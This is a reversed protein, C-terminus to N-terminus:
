IGGKAYGKNGAIVSMDDTGKIEDHMRHVHEINPQRYSRRVSKSLLDQEDRIAYRPRPLLNPQAPFFGLLGVPFTGTKM